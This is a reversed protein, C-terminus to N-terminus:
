ARALTICTVRDAGATRLVRACESLTSGTTVVDDVLLIRRGAVQVGPRLRYADLVNARRASDGKLGSQAPTHRVKDLLREVPLGLKRGLERALLESQDYDRERRRKRSLPVWTLMDFEGELRDTVCQAMLTAYPAAYSRAGSFKYRHHSDRVADQYWLPSVCRDFFEGTREEMM